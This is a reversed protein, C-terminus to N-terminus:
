VNAAEDVKPNDRLFRRLVVAGSVIIAGGVLTVAFSLPVGGWQHVVGALFILAGYVYFRRTNFSLAVVAVLGGMALGTWVPLYADILTGVGTQSRLLVLGGGVVMGIVAALLGRWRSAPRFRVYGIRPHTIRKKAVWLFAFAAACVVGIMVSMDTEMLLGWALVCAGVFLDWLGDQTYYLMMQRQIRKGDLEVSGVRTVDTM